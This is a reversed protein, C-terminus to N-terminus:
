GARANGRKQNPLPISSPPIGRPCPLSAPLALISRGPNNRASAGWLVAGKPVYRHIARAPPCVLRHNILADGTEALWFIGSIFDARACHFVFACARVSCCVTRRVSSRRGRLDLASEKRKECGVWGVCGCRWPSVAEVFAETGM